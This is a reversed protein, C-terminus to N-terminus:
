QPGGKRNDKWDVKELKLHEIIEKHSREVYFRSSGIFIYCSNPTKPTVAWILDPNVDLFGLKIVNVLEKTM